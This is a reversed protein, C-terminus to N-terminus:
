EAAIDVSDPTADILLRDAVEDFRALLRSRADDIKVDIQGSVRLDQRATEQWLAKQRNSLWYKAAPTDPPYHEVFPVETVRIEDSIVENGEADTTRTTIKNAFVKVSRYSYGCARRYLSKAVKADAEIRGRFLADSFEKRTQKWVYFTERSIGIADAIQEDTAGLLCLKGVLSVLKPTFKTPRGGFNGVAYKNGKPAAVM